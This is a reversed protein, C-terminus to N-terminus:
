RYRRPPKGEGAAILHFTGDGRVEVEVWRGTDRDMWCMHGDDRDMGFARRLYAALRGTM